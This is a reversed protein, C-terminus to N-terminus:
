SPVSRLTVSQNIPLMTTFVTTRKNTSDWQKCDFFYNGPVLTPNGATLAPIAFHFLGTTNGPLDQEFKSASDPTLNGYGDDLVAKITIGVKYGTMDKLTVNDSQYFQIDLPIDDGSIFAQSFISGCTNM